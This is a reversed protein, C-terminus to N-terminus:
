VLNSTYIKGAISIVIPKTQQEMSIRCYVTHNSCLLAIPVFWAAISHESVCKDEPKMKYASMTYVIYQLIDISCYVLGITM